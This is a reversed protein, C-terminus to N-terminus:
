GRAPEQEDLLKKAAVLRRFKVPDGGLDPHERRAAERFLATRFSPSEMVRRVIDASDTDALLRAAADVTMQTEPMPSGAGLAKWGAYQEGRTTVGYRDVARLAELGLAVARVNHQWTEYVDTAYRLDGHITGLLNVIVGPHRVSRANARPTGDQRLDSEDLGIELRIEKTGLREAEYLLRAETDSYAARFACRSRRNATPKDPWVPLPAFRLLM